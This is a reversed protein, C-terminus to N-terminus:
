SVRRYMWLGIFGHTDLAEWTGGFHLAPKAPSFSAYIGDVPYMAAPYEFAVPDNPTVGEITVSCLPIEVLTDGGLLDGTAYEPATPADATQTGSLVAIEASEPTSLDVRIVILDIRNKGPVGTQITVDEYGEIGLQRGYAVMEGSAIRVTNSDQLSPKFDDGTNLTYIQTGFVGANLRAAQASTFHAKGQASTAFYLAM